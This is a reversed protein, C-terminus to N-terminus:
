RGACGVPDGDRGPGPRAPGVAVGVPRRRGAAPALYDRGSRLGAFDDHGKIAASWASTLVVGPSVLPLAFGLAVCSSGPPGAWADAGEGGARAAAYERADPERRAAVVFARVEDALTRPRRLLYLTLPGTM